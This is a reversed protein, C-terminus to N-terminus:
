VGGIYEALRDKKVFTEEGKFSAVAIKGAETDISEDVEPEVLPPYAYPSRGMTTPTRSTEDLPSNAAPGAVPTGRGHLTSTDGDSLRKGADKRSLLAESAPTDEDTSQTPYRLHRSPRAPPTLMSMIQTAQQVPTNTLDADALSSVRTSLAPALPIKPSSGASKSRSPHSLLDQGSKSSAIPSEPLPIGSASQSTTTRDRLTMSQAPVGLEMALDREVSDGELMGEVHRRWQDMRVPTSGAPGGKASSSGRRIAEKDDDEDSDDGTQTAPERHHRSAMRPPHASSPPPTESVPSPVESLDPSRLPSIPSTASVASDKRSPAPIPQPQIASVAKREDPRPVTSLPQASPSPKFANAPQSSAIDFVKTDM